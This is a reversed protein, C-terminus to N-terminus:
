LDQTLIFQYTRPAFGSIRACYTMGATVAAELQSNRTPVLTTGTCTSNYLYLALTATSNTPVAQVYVRGTKAARFRIYDDDGMQTDEIAGDLAVYPAGLSMIDALPRAPTDPMMPEKLSIKMAAAARPTVSYGYGTMGGSLNPPVAALFLDGRRPLYALATITTTTTMGMTTTFASSPYSGGEAFRGSPPAWFTIVGASALSAGIDTYSLVLVQEDAPAALRYLNTQGAASFSENMQTMGPTLARPQRATVRPLNPDAPDVGYAIPRNLPDTGTLVVPLVGAPLLADVLVLNSWRNAAVTATGVGAGGGTLRVANFPNDGTDLNRVTVRVIGGQPVSPAPGMAPAEHVLAARVLLGGQLSAREDGGPGAGPTTVTVTHAGLRAREGIKIQARLNGKSGLEVMQATIEPDDFEISSRLSFSTGAGAIQAMVTRGPFAQSPTLLTLTAEGQGPDGKDDKDDKEGTGCGAALMGILLWHAHRMMLMM